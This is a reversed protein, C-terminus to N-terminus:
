PARALRKTRRAGRSPGNLRCGRASLLRPVAEGELPTPRGVPNSTAPPVGPRASYASNSLVYAEPGPGQGQKSGRGRSM